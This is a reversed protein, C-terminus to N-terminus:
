HVLQSRRLETVKDFEAMNVDALNPPTELRDAPAIASEEGRVYRGLNEIRVTVNRAFSELLLRSEAEAIGEELIADRVALLAPIAKSEVVTRSPRYSWVDLHVQQTLECLRKAWGVGRPLAALTVFMEELDLLVRVDSVSLGSANM